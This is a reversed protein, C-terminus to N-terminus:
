SVSDIMDDISFSKNIVDTLLGLDSENTVDWGVPAKSTLGSRCSFTFVKFDKLAKEPDIEYDDIHRYPDKKFIGKESPKIDNVIHHMYHNLFMFPEKGKVEGLFKIFLNVGQEIAEQNLDDYKEAFYSIYKKQTIFIGIDRVIYDYVTISVIMKYLWMPCFKNWEKKM